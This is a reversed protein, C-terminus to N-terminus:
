YHSGNHRVHLMPEAAPDLLGGAVVRALFIRHDGGAWAAAGAAEHSALAEALVPGGQADARLHLGEFAAAEPLFGRAFHQILRKQGARVQNLAFRGSGAIWDAVYRDHRVAVTLMPPRFGAQQVWSALMGTARDGRRVTLIFLGSPVRGLALNLPSPESRTTDAMILQAGPGTSEKRYGTRARTRWPARRAPMAGQGM